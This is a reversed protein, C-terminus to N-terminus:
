KVGSKVSKKIQIKLKTYHNSTSTKIRSKVGKSM